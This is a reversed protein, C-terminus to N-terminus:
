ASEPEPQLEAQALRILKGIGNQNNESAIMAAMDLMASVKEIQIPPRSAALRDEMMTQSQSNDAAPVPATETEPKPRPRYARKNIPRNLLKGLYERFGYGATKISKDKATTYLEEVADFIAATERESAQILPGWVRNGSTKEPGVKKAKKQVSEPLIDLHNNFIGLPIRVPYTVTPKATKAKSATSSEKAEKEPNSAENSAAVTEVAPKAESKSEVTEGVDVNKETDNEILISM